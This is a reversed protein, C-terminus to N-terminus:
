GAADEHNLGRRGKLFCRDRGQGCGREEVKLLVSREAGAARNTNDRSKLNWIGVPNQEPLALAIVLLLAERM